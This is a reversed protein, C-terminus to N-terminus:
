VLDGSAAADAEGGVECLLLGGDGFGWRKKVKMPASWPGLSRRAHARWSGGRSQEALPGRGGCSIEPSVEAGMAQGAVGESTLFGDGGVDDVECALFASEDDLDVAM